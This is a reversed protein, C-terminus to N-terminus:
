HERLDSMFLEERIPQYDSSVRNIAEQFTMRRPPLLQHLRVVAQSNRYSFPASLEGPELENLATRIEESPASVSDRIVLLGDMEDKLELANEGGEVHEIAENLLSDSGSAILTYDYREEYRYQDRNEEYYRKLATTDASEPSWINEDSVQFVVLGDLFGEIESDFDNFRDRTMEILHDDLIQERYMDIWSNSFRSAKRNARTDDLWNKFDGATYEQGNFSIIPNTFRHDELSVTQVASTDAAHFIETLRDATEDHVQLEGVDTMRELVQQRDAKFRPLEKLEEELEAIRQDDDRYSRVSDIRFIHYGYNTQLPETYSKSTDAALVTEIFDASFQRGYGIWGIDGGSDASSGDQTFEEVVDNWPRGEDLAEYADRIVQNSPPDQQNPRVFIHRTKRDPTRERKEELHILHYGFQTRVPESIEGPELSFLADEFSKVTVGATIWPLDGGAPRGQIQTSYTQNLEEMTSDGSLFEERAQELTAVAENNGAGGPRNQEVRILVHSANLEYNSREAYEELMQQKIDNQLWYSYAAQKAYSHYEDLIEPDEYLGNQKGHMLKLQFNVYFPLFERLDGPTYNKELNNKEYYRTLDTQTFTREGITAIVQETAQESNASQTSSTSTCGSGILTCIIATGLLFLRNM